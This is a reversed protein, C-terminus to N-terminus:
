PRRAPVPRAIRRVRGDRRRVGSPRLRSVQQSLIRQDVERSCLKRPCADYETIAASARRPMLQRFATAAVARSNTYGAHPSVIARAGSVDEGIRAGALLADLEALLREPDDPYFSGAASALRIATPRTM